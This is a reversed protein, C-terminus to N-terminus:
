CTYDEGEKGADPDDPNVVRWSNATGELAVCGDTWDVMQILNAHCCNRDSYTALLVKNDKESEWENIIGGFTGARENSCGSALNATFQSRQGTCRGNTYLGIRFAYVSPLVISLVLLPSYM